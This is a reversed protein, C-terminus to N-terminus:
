LSEGNSRIRLWMFGTWVECGTERFDMKVNDEWRLRHIRRRGWSTDRSFNQIIKEDGV